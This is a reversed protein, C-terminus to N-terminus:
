QRLQLSMFLKDDCVGRNSALLYNQPLSPSWMIDLHEQKSREKQHLKQSQYTPDLQIYFVSIISSQIKTCCAAATYLNISMTIYREFSTGLNDSMISDQSLQNSTACLPHPAMRSPSGRCILYKYFPKSRTQILRSDKVLLWMDLLLVEMKCLQIKESNM